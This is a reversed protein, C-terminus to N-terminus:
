LNETEKVEIKKRKACMKPLSTLSPGRGMGNFFFPAMFYLASSM